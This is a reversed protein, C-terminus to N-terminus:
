QGEACQIVQGDHVGAELFFVNVLEGPLMLPALLLVTNVINDHASQLSPHATINTHDSRCIAPSVM